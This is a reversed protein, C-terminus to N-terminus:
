GIAVFSEKQLHELQKTTPNEAALVHTTKGAAIAWPEATCTTYQSWFYDPGSSYCLSLKAERYTKQKSSTPQGNFWLRKFQLICFALCGTQWSFTSATRLM